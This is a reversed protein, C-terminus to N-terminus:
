EAPVDKKSIEARKELLTERAEKALKIYSARIKDLEQESLDELNLLANIHMAESDRNQTNQILFVMLFTIITTGTNVILQWTDSFGFLPGTVLWVLIVAAALTFVIPQGTARAAKRAFDSFWSSKKNM